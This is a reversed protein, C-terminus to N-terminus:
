AIRGALRRVSAVLHAVEGSALGPRTLMVPVGLRAMAAILEREGAREAGEDLVVVMQHRRSRVLRAAAVLVEIRNPLDTSDTLLFHCEPDRAQAVAARVARAMREARARSFTTLPPPAPVPLLRDRRHEALFARLRTALLTDDELFADLLAPDGGQRAALVSALRKRERLRLTHKVTLLRTIGWLAPGSWSAALCLWPNAMVYALVIIMPPALWIYGRHRFIWGTWGGHRSFGPRGPGLLLRNWGLLVESSGYLEPYIEMALRGAPEFLPLPDEDAPPLDTPTASELALRQLLRLRHRGGRNPREVVADRETTIIMGVPDRLEDCAELIEAAAM